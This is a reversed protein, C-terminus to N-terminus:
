NGFMPRVVDQARYEMAASLTHPHKPINPPTPVLTELTEFCTGEFTQPREPHTVTRSKETRDAAPSLLAAPLSRVPSYQVEMLTNTDLDAWARM